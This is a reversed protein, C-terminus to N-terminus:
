PQWITKNEFWFDWNPYIQLAESQFIKIYKIGMQIIKCVNPITQLWKACKTNMQYIKEPKPIMYWSYDPLGAKFISWQNEKLV